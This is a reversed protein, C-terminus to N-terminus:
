KSKNKHYNLKEEKTAVVVGLPDELIVPVNLYTSDFWNGGTTDELLLVDVVRLKVTIVECTRPFISYRTREIWAPKNEKVVKLIKFTKGRFDSPMMIPNVITIFMGRKLKKSVPKLYAVAEDFSDTNDLAEACALIGANTLHM